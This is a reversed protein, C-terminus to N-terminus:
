MDIVDGNEEDAIVYDENNKRVLGRDSKFASRVAQAERGRAM